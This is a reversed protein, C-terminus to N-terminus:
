PGVLSPQVPLRERKDYRWAAHPGAQDVYHLFVQTNAEGEFPERWHPVETGKYIVADGPEMRAGVIGTLGEVFLPYPEAADCGLCLSVSIECAPRDKHRRLECGKRYVRFYSYTPFLPRSILAEVTPLLQLLLMEMCPHAYGAPADPVMRDRGTHSRKSYALGYRHLTLAAAPALISKALLWGQTEFEDKRSAPIM